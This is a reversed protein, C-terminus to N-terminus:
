NKGSRSSAGGIIKFLVLLVILGAGGYWIMQRNSNDPAAPEEADGHASSEPTAAAPVPPPTATADRNGAASTLPAPPMTPLIRFSAAAHQLEVDQAADQGGGGLLSISFTYGGASAFRVVGTIQQAGAGARVQYQLWDLGGVSVTAHGAFQYGFKRLLGEIAQQVAPESIRTGPVKEVINIGFVAHRAPNQLAILVEIGPTRPPEIPQWGASDPLSASCHYLESRWEVGQATTLFALLLLALPTRM